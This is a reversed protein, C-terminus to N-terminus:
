TLLKSPRVCAHHIGVARHPFTNVGSIKYVLLPQSQSVTLTPVGSSGVRIATSKGVVAALSTM